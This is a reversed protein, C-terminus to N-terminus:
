NQVRAKPLRLTFMTGTGPISQLSLDGNNALTNRLASWLGFGSSGKTSYFLSFIKSQEESPIGVGTDAVEIEVFTKAGRARLTVTGGGPMAEVANTILNYLVNNIQSVTIFVDPLEPEPEVVLHIGPPLIPFRAKASDLLVSTPMAEPARNLRGEEIDAVEQKLRSSFDLVEGVDRLIFQLNEAIEATMAERRELDIKINHVWARVPGLDGALRHTLEYASQGILGMVEYEKARQEAGQRATVIELRQITIALQQALGELLQVDAGNFYYPHGHSLALNGYYNNGFMVPTVVLSRTKIDSLYPEVGPPPNQADDVVVTQKERAVLGNVGKNIDMEQFPVIPESKGAKMAVLKQRDEDYRRVVIQGDSRARFADVVIEYAKDLQEENLVTIRALGKGAEYLLEFRQLAVQAEEFNRTSHLAIVALDALERLLREDRELFPNDILSEINIAGVATGGDMLPVALEWCVDPIMREYIEQWPPECVNINLMEGHRVAWGVVGQDLPLRSRNLNPLVGQEALTHLDGRKPDFLMLQGATCRTIELAKKLIVEAVTQFDTHGVIEKQVEQVAALEDAIRKEREYAQANKIALVAQNALTVLFEQDELDFRQPESSEYSITGIVKENEDLLPVDLESMTAPDVQYYVDHWQEEHRVDLALAPAKNEYAWYSLGKRESLEITQNLRLDRNPGIAAEAKLLNTLPHHLLIAGNLSSSKKSQMYETALALIKELIEGKDLTKSIERDIRRLVTVMQVNRQTLDDFERSNKIAIAAYNALGEILQRQGSGFRHRRRFNIFLVGVKETGVLLPVAATSVIREREEFNGQRKVKNGGLLAYLNKSEPAFVAGNQDLALSAIDDPRSYNPVPFDPEIMTGSMKPPFEFSNSVQSFPYLVVLDAKSKGMILNIVEDLVHASDLRRTLLQGAENLRSLSDFLRMNGLALAVHNSLLELIRRDEGDYANPYEQQVSLVGIAVDRLKLPVFMLSESLAPEDGTINIPKFPLSDKQQTFHDILLPKSNRIVWECAGGSTDDELSRTAIPLSKGKEIMHLTLTDLQEDHVGLLFFFNTGLIHPLYIQLKEFL